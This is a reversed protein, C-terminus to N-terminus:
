EAPPQIDPGLEDLSLNHILADVEPGSENAQDFATRLDVGVLHMLRARQVHRNGRTPFDDSTEGGLAAKYNAAFETDAVEPDAMNGMIANSAIALLAMARELGDGRSLVAAIKRDIGPVTITDYKIGKAGGILGELGVIVGVQHAM